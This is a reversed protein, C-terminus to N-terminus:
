AAHEIAQPEPCTEAEPQYQEARNRGHGKARYLALDATSMLDTLSSNRAAVSIGLSITVPISVQQHEIRQGEVAARLSEAIASADAKSAAPVYLAFEEGGLRAFIATKSLAGRLCEAVAVLVADGAAHGHTDNVRKFHDIDIIVFADGEAPTDPLQSFFWHRNHVKTLTDIEVLTKLRAEAREKVFVLVFLAIGFQCLIQLFFIEAATVPLVGPAALCLIVLLCLLSSMTLTAALPYRALLREGTNDRLLVVTAAGMSVIAGMQFVTARSLNDLYFGTRVAIVTVLAPIILILWDSSRERNDALRRAGIWFLAYAVMGLAFSGLTWIAYPLASQEGLGAITSGLALLIFTAAMFALGQCRGSQWRVYLFGAAGILLSSKHLLLVTALDM